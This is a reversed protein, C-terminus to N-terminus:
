GNRCWKRCSRAGFNGFMNMARLDDRPEKRWPGDGATPVLIAAGATMAALVLLVIAVSGLPRCSSCSVLYFWPSLRRDLPLELEAPEVVQNCRFDTPSSAGLISGIMFGLIPLSTLSGAAKPSLGHVNQLYTPCWTFWFVAAAARFFQQACLLLVAPNGFLASWATPETNSKASKEERLLEREDDNTSPHDNPRDRFWGFFWASWVV